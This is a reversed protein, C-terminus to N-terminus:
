PASVWPDFLERIDADGIAVGNNAQQSQIYMNMIMKMGDVPYNLRVGQGEAIRRGWEARIRRWYDSTNDWYVHGSRFNFGTIRRYDNVGTENVLTSREREGERVVKRNAQEHLWGEATCGARPPSATPTSSAWRTTTAASPTNAGRCRGGGPM